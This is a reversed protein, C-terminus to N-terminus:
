KSEFLIIKRIISLCSLCVRLKFMERTGPFYYKKVTTKDKYSTGIFVTGVPKDKTGGKPGAIGSVAIAIDSGSISKSNLTMEKVCQRSVAGYKILTDKKIDLINEKANNGYTVFGYNFCRSSGPANTIMNALLGGTCSEATSVFLKKELLMNVVTTPMNTEDISYIYEALIKRIREEIVRNEKKALSLTSSRSIIRLHIEFNYPRFGIYTSASDIKQIKEAVESESLGFVRLIKSSTFSKIKSQEKKLDKFFSNKSMAKFEGPVGPFFYYKSKDELFSFGPATGESNAIISAKQPFYAQKKNLKSYKRKRDKFIQRIKDEEKPNLILKRDFFMSAAERTLDDHTPGLGGTVLIFGSRNSAIKLAAVIDHISDGVCQQYNVKFGHRFVEGALWYFNSDQTVGSLLEEGTTIIEISKNKM